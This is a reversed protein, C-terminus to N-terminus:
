VHHLERVYLGQAHWRHLLEREAEWNHRSVPQQRPDAHHYPLQSSPTVGLGVTSIGEWGGLISRFWALLLLGASPPACTQTVLERWIHLPATLVPLGQELRPRLPQWNQRRVQMEPGTVVVWPAELPMPGAYGPAAVWVQLRVGVDEDRSTENRYRNFRVVLGQGDIWMGQGAGTLSGANGVLCIGKDRCSHVYEAFRTRWHHQQESLDALWPAATKSNRRRQWAAVPAMRQAADKTLHHSAAALREPAATAVLALARRRQLPRLRILGDLLPAIWRQPLGHGLDWRFLVYELLARSSRNRQWAARFLALTLLDYYGRDRRRQALWALVVGPLMPGRGQRLRQGRPARWLARLEALTM